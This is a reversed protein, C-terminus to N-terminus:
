TRMPERNEVHWRCHTNTWGLRGVWGASREGKTDTPRNEIDTDRNRTQVYSWWYWKELNWMYAHIYSTQKGKQGVLTSKQCCDDRKATHKSKGRREPSGNSVRGLEGAKRNGQNGKRGRGMVLKNAHPSKLIQGPDVIGSPSGLHSLPLSYAQRHM